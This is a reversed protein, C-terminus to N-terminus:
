SGIQHTTIAQEYVKVQQSAPGSWSWDAEMGNRQIDRWRSPDKWARVARHLADVVGGGDVSGAVFGSGKETDSDADTVTDVLGGVGTVVPVTGYEMAQMQALGCPEFRSPMLLMDSGAFIRHGLGVDYGDHFFVTDPMSEAFQRALDALWREGSGLVVLRFPMHKAYRVAEFALEIGKQAVLRGIIGVVPADTDTWGVEALLGARSAVKGDLSDADFAEAIFPDTAPNWVTTDIGNRIGILGDGLAALEAHLGSGGEPTRMENAHNPSVAIVRDALQIAGAVPNTGGQADFFTPENVIRDLWGGSTWGQYALNHLTFVSPISPDVLGLTLATHWDNCHIIDPRTADALAAVAASFSFFRDANDPWAAGDVDVYPNPREIGTVRVLTIPGADTSTGRRATAPAAWKPVDLVIESEDDLPTDFYDPVVVEVEVGLSRLGRVLGSAAEALGGVRALPSFEASAFLVKM